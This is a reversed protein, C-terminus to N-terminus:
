LDILEKEILRVALSNISSHQARSVADLKRHVEVPMRLVLRGSYPKDPEKGKEQCFALYEDVSDRFESEIQKPSEAEFTVVDRIGVVTGHIVGAETDVDIVGAYGKYKLMTM